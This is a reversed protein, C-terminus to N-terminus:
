DGGGVSRLHRVEDNNKLLELTEKIWARATRESIGLAQAITVVGVRKSGYPVDNMFLHFALRKRSDSVCELIRDVHIQQDVEEVGQLLSPNWKKPANAGPTSSFESVDALEEEESVANLDIGDDDHSGNQSETGSTEEAPPADPIRRERLEKAIADKIRFEVRAWFAQRLSRGDASEPRLLATFIENHVRCIIDEGQNPHNYGVRKRLMRYICNSLYKALANQVQIDRNGIDQFAGAIAELRFGRLRGDAIAQRWGVLDKSDPPQADGIQADM